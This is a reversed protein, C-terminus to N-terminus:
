NVSDKKKPKNLLGGLVDKVVEETKPPKTTTPKPTQTVTSDQPTQTQGTPNTGTMSGILDKITNTGQNLLKQKEIDILKTTLTKVSNSLDTTITPNNLSGKLNATVPITLNNVAPDNIKGILRNVESGLYKAPVEMVVQYDILKDFGHSGSVEMAIDKYKLHYPKVNVKGDSFDLETKIDKLDLQNFDVFNLNQQLRSLVKSNSVDISSTFIEALASGKLSSLQPTFDPNLNGALSLTSNLKGQLVKALPVLAQFLDLSNFSKAIDFQSADLNLTFTPTETKSSISGNLGLKGDFISSDFNQLSATQDKIVLSGKVNKLNLNEYVVTGAQANITCDLFDPINFTTNDSTKTDSTAKSLLDNVVLNNSNLNFTGQLKTSSLLYGIFNKLTGTVNLDTTGTQAKFSNLSVLSPNFTVNATSIHMPNPMEDSSFILDSVTLNGTTRIRQYANTELAKMDFQTNLKGKLLGSLQKEFKVPYVKSINALNLTGDVNANVLMNETLNKLQASAKFVDQDIKFNLTNIDVYADESKGTTNKIDTDIIINEVRKSLNPYKFSANNSAIKIDINPITEDTLMGNITGKVKFDGTTDVKDLDKSYTEPVLALLDKFSSGPNEFSIDLAQGSDLLKVYGQFELPLQNIYGKNEKFTYINNKLDLGILADLKILHNNLYQTSDITMSILTATHTDMESTNASFTGTGNHNLENLNFSIGSSEDLYNVASKEIRYDQIDFTFSSSNEPKSTETQKFIDYNTLGAQNTKLTLLAEDISISNITLPDKGSSKFLEKLPMVFDLSKATLLKEGEFPEFNTITLDDVELEVNPFSSLFSLGVHGFSVNANLNKDFYNQLISEIKSQFVFPLAIVLILLVLFTLGLGKLLKKKM